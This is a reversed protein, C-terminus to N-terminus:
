WVLPQLKMTLARFQEEMIHKHCSRSFQPRVRFFPALQLYLKSTLKVSFVTQNTQMLDKRLCERRLITPKGATPLASHAANGSLDGCALTFVDHQIVNVHNYSGLEAPCGENPRTVAEM